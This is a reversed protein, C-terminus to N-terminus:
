VLSKLPQNKNIYRRYQQENYIPETHVLGYKGNCENFTDLGSERKVWETGGIYRSLENNLNQEDNYHILLHIHYRNISVDKEISYETCIKDEKLIKRHLTLIQKHLNRRSPNTSKNNDYNWKRIMVGIRNM